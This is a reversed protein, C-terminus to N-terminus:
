NLNSGWNEQKEQIQEIQEFFLDDSHNIQQDESTYHLTSKGRLNKIPNEITVTITLEQADDSISHQDQFGQDMLIPDDIPKFADDLIAMWCTADRGHYDDRLADELVDSDEDYPVGDLQVSFGSTQVGEEEKIEGFTGFDGVPLFEEDTGDGDSDFLLKEFGTWARLVDTDYHAEYLYALRVPESQLASEQASSIERGM